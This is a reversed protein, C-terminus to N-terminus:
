LLEQSWQYLRQAEEEWEDEYLDMFTNEKGSRSMYMERMSNARNKARKSGRSSGQPANDSVLHKHSATVPTQPPAKFASIARAQEIELARTSPRTLLKPINEQLHESPRGGNMFFDVLDYFVTHRPIIDLTLRRWQNNRGGLSSPMEDLTSQWQWYDKVSTVDTKAVVKRKEYHCADKLMQNCFERSGMLKLSDRAATSGPAIVDGCMLQGPRTLYIKFVVYPPYEEGAFRFRVRAKFAPDQLLESEKPSVKRLIEHSLSMEAARISHKLLLFMQKDRWRWWWSQVRRVASDSVPRDTDALQENGGASKDARESPEEALEPLKVTLQSKQRDM